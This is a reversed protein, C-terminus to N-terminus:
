KSFCLFSLLGSVASEYGPIPPKSQRQAFAKRAAKLAVEEAALLRRLHAAMSSKKTSTLRRRLEQRAMASDNIEGLCDQLERLLTDLRERRQRPIVDGALELAYRLRKGQIRLRHLSDSSSQKGCLAQQFREAPRQLRQRIFKTYSPERGSADSRGWRVRALLKKVRRELRESRLLDQRIALIPKQQRRREASLHHSLAAHGHRLGHQDIM